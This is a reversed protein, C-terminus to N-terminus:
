EEENEEYEAMWYHQQSLEDSWEAMKSFPHRNDSMISRRMAELLDLIRQERHLYEPLCGTPPEAALVGRGKCSRCKETWVEYEDRGQGNGTSDCDLCSNIM